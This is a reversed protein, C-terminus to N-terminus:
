KKLNNSVLLKKMTAIFEVPVYNNKTLSTSLEVKTAGETVMGDSTSISVFRRGNSDVDPLYGIMWEEKIDLRSYKRGVVIDSSEWTFKM